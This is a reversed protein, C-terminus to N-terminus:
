REGICMQWIDSQLYHIFLFEIPLLDTSRSLELRYSAGNGAEFCKWLFFKSVESVFDNGFLLLIRVSISEKKRKDRKDMTDMWICIHHTLFTTGILYIILKESFSWFFLYSFILLTYSRWKAPHDSLFSTSGAFFLYLITNHSLGYYGERECEM